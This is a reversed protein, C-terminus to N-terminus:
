DALTAQINGEFEGLAAQIGRPDKLLSTGVLVADFGLEQVKRVENPKVGSEAVKIVGSPLSKILSFTSLDVSFDSSREAPKPGRWEAWTTQSAKFKRSNIGCVRANPPLAEIETETHVEFLADMGLERVVAYLRQLDDKALANAMLLVADAGYARAEHVQYESIIFDKRLIPQSVQSKIQLLSEIQMGFYHSDTLVSVAKVIPSKGYVAAADTVNASRMDGASPSKKKIEAILCFGRSLADAFSRVAPADQCMRKLEGVARAQEAAAVEAAKHKLIEDLFTM